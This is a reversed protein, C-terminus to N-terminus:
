FINKEERSDGLPTGAQQREAFKSQYMAIDAQHLLQPVNDAHEPYIAIGISLSATVSEGGPLTIPTQISARISEAIRQADVIKSPSVFLLAFEDGGLRAAVDGAGLYKKLRQSIAILVADGAAHGFQDNIQKFRDCDILLLAIQSDNLNANAVEKILRDNFQARNCLGTLSDHNARYYLSANEAEVHSHWIALEDLLANFDEAFSNLETVEADPVRESFDRKERVAHAVRTFSQLPEVIQDMLRRSLRVATVVILGQSVLIVLLGGIIYSLLNQGNSSVQVEGIVVGDHTIPTVVPKQRLLFVTIGALEAFLSHSPRKWYALMQGSRGIITASAVNETSVISTLADQAAAENDFVTAAEANYAVAHAVLRLSDNAYTMLVIAGIATLSLGVLTISTVIIKLHARRLVSLLTKQGARSKFLPAIM